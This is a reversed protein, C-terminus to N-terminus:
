PNLYNHMSLKSYAESKSGSEVFETIQCNYESNVGYSYINEIDVINLAYNHYTLDAFYNLNKEASNGSPLIFIDSNNLKLADNKINKSVVLDSNVYCRFDIGKEQNKFDFYDAFVLTFLFWRPNHATSKTLEFFNETLHIETVPNNLTNFRVTMYKGGDNFRVLPSAIFYDPPKGDFSIKKNSGKIFLDMTDEFDSKMDVWFSYSYQAGGLLNNSPPTHIYQNKWPNSTNLHKSSGNMSCKGLTLPVSIISIDLKNKLKDYKYINPFIYPIIVNLLILNIIIGAILFALLHALNM